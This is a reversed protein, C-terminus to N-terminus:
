SLPQPLLHIYNIALYYFLFAIILDYVVYSFSHLVSRRFCHPSIAKKIEGVTFPPKSYPVRRIVDRDSKKGEPPVSMRGGAGM